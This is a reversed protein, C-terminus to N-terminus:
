RIKVIVAGRANRAGKATLTFPFKYKRGKKAKRTAKLRFTKTKTKGAAINGLGFCSKGKPKIFKKLKKSPKACLKASMAVSKGTNKATVKIKM